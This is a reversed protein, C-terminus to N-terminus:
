KMSKLRQSAKKAEKSGPFKAIVEELFVKGEEKKNLELFAVGIRLTATPYNKGRPYSKRYNEYEIIATKWDRQDFAAEAAVLSDKGSSSSTEKASKQQSRKLEDSLAAVQNEIKKLAEEYAQFRKENEERRRAEQAHHGSQESSAQGIQNEVQELRGNLARMQQDYEDLRAASQAQREQAATITPRKNESERLEARTTLCGSILLPLLLVLGDFKLDLKKKM